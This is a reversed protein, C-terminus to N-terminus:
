CGRYRIFGKWEAFVAASDVALAARAEYGSLKAISPLIAFNNIVISNYNLDSLYLDM